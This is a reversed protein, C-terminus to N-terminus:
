YRELMEMFEDFQESADGREMSRLAEVTPVNEEEQGCTAFGV